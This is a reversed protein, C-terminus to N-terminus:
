CCECSDNLEVSSDSGASRLSEIYGSDSFHQQVRVANAIAILAVGVDAFIAAWLSAWGLAALIMVGAKVGLAIGINQWVIRHTFHAIEIATPIKSPQDTQIVVDATEITADSGMGGMALGVDALTIVPADNVGDGVFGVTHNGNLLQEVHAYKEDPLLGGYAQELGLEAAVADTIQQNDGSLM